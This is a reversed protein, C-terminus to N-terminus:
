GNSGGNAEEEILHEASKLVGQLNVLLGAGPSYRAQDCLDRLSAHKSIWSESVGQERLAQALEERTAGTPEIGYRSGLFADLIRGISLYLDTPRTEDGASRLEQLARKAAGRRERIGSTAELSERRRKWLTGTLLLLLPLGFVALLWRSSVKKSEEMEAVELTAVLPKLQLGHTADNRQTDTAGMVELRLTASATSYHRGTTPNFADLRIPPLSLTGNQKPTVMYLFRVIGDIGKQSRVIEDRDQGDLLEFDFLDSSRLNPAKVSALNGNGSVELTLIRREGVQARTRDFSGKVEFKGINGKQFLENANVKDIERVRITFPVSAVKRRTQNMFGRGVLTMRLSEVTIEGPELAILLEQRLTIRDYRYPGIRQVRKPNTGELLDESLVGDITPMKVRESSLSTGTRSFLYFSLVFPEGVYPETKSLAPVVFIDEGVHSSLDMADKAQTPAAKVQARVAVTLPQSEAVKKGKLYGISVGIRLNGEKRPELVKTFIRERQVRGNFIRTQQSSGSTLIHWDQLNPEEYQDMEGKIRITMDLTDQVTISRSSIEVSIAQATSKSPTLAALMFFLIGIPFLTTKM